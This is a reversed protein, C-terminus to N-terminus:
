SQTLRGHPKSQKICCSGAPLALRKSSRQFLQHAWKAKPAAITYCHVENRQWLTLVDSERVPQREDARQECTRM